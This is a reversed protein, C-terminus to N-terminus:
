KRIPITAAPASLSPVISFKVVRPLQTLGMSLYACSASLRNRDQGVLLIELGKGGVRLLQRHLAVALLDRELALPDGAISARDVPALRTGFALVREILQDVLSRPENGTVENGEALREVREAPLVIDQERVDKSLGLRECKHLRRLLYCRFAGWVPRTGCRTKSPLRRDLVIRASREVAAMGVM